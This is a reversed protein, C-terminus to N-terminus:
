ASGSLTLSSLSISFGRRLECMGPDIRDVDSLNNICRGCKTHISM